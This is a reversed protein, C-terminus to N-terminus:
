IPHRRPSNASDHEQGAAHWAAALWDQTALDLSQLVYVTNGNGDAKTVLRYADPLTKEIRAEGIPGMPLERTAPTTESPKM